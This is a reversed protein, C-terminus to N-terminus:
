CRATDKSAFAGASEKAARAKVDALWAGPMMQTNM